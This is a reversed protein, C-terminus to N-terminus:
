HSRYRFSQAVELFRDNAEDEGITIRVGEDGFCRVALGAQEASAAFAASAEGLPLWVFNGQANPVHWGQVRLQDLVRTREAVVADVRQQMEDRAALSAVAAAEALSNVGFTVATKRLAAAVPERAIAYGVRLGALGHAKSFTRLVAVNPHKRCLALVDAASPDTVFEVYAEDVVVLVDRPVQELFREVESHALAPGTPNNPTCLLVLRTQNTIAAAMADLRHRGEADNPVAISRAGVLGAVIPYAEFSRWSYVVEDGAECTAQVIQGLIAVSGTGTAIEEVPVELAESLATRLRGVSADPYRNVRVAAERITALVSPLPEYPNENSSLKYGTAGSDDIVAPKGAQYTPVTDLARRLRM